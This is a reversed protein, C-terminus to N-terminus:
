RRKIAFDVDQGALLPNGGRLEEEKAKAAM